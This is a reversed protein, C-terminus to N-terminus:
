EEWGKKCSCGSPATDICNADCPACYGSLPLSLASFVTGACLARSPEMPEEWEQHRVYPVALPLRATNDTSPLNCFDMYLSREPNFVLYTSTKFANVGEKVTYEETSFITVSLFFLM